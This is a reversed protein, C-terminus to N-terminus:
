KKAKDLAEQLQKDTTQGPIYTISGPDKADTAGVFLAPTGFLKLKKGLELNAAIKDKIEKSDMDKKLQDVDVGANKALDLIKDETLAQNATLIAHSVEAYKGQKNAALAARSAFDSVPGRIPFEKYVIRLEQNNKLAADMVPVMDICHSCQYDFFEVVTIKGDPNGRVPDDSQHFLPTAFSSASDQTQKVTKEAEKYQRQQLIQLVEVIVEPKRLLYQHVVEEIQAKEKASFTGTTAAFSNYSPIAFALCSAALITKKFKNM